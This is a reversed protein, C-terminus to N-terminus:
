IKNKIVINCILDTLNEREDLIEDKSVYRNIAKCYLPDTHLHCMEHVIYPIIDKGEKWEKVAKDSYKITANLYPYNCVCEMTAKLNETGKEIEFTHRQLLLIPSYKNIIGMLYKEFRIKDKKYDRMSGPITKGKM